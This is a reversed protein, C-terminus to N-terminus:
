PRRDDRKKAASTAATQEQSGLLNAVSGLYRSAQLSDMERRNMAESTTIKVDTEAIGGVLAGFRFNNAKKKGGNVTRFKSM